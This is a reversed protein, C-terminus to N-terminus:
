AEFKQFYGYFHLGKEAADIEASKKNVGKGLGIIDGSDSKVCVTHIKKNNREEINVEYFKPVWQYTHHCYKILTDKYNENRHVLESFDLFHEFVSIIWTRAIDFGNENKEEHDLFIAGIFAEFADELINKNLRGENGEIQQSIVLHKSFGCKQSLDALMKGNVLKTRMNTLFGENMDPYREFVYHATTLNLISDGLFELRENSEEQLPLCDNPCHVNGSQFNENKRTIYSKHVFARRYINLDHYVNVGFKSLIELLDENNLKTNLSNYPFDLIDEDM